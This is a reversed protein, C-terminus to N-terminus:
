ASDPALGLTSAPHDGYDAAPRAPGFLRGQALECGLSRLSAWQELTEVGEAIAGLGLSHALELIAGCVADGDRSRGLEAVFAGDIKIADLPYQKLSVLSSGGAGFDDIVLRVGVDRLRHLADASAERDTLLTEETVELWVSGPALGAGGIVRAVRAPLTPDALERTSLNVNLKLTTASREHWAAMQACALEIARSGVAVIAGNREAQPLFESPLLLGREPHNWRVLSEFGAIRGTTCSVIPLYHVVFEGNTLAAAFEADTIVSIPADACIEIRGGGQARGRNGAKIARRLVSEHREDPEAALAVGISATVEAIGDAVASPHAVGMAVREALAEAAARDPVDRCVLVFREQNVHAVVDRPRTVARLRQTIAEVLHTGSRNGLRENVQQLNDLEVSVVAFRGLHVSSDTLWARLRDLDLVPIRPPGADGRDAVVEPAREPNSVPAEAAPSAISVVVEPELLQAVQDAARAARRGARLAQFTAVLAIALAVVTAVALVTNDM